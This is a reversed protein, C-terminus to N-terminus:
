AGKKEAALEKRKIMHEIKLIDHDNELLEYYYKLNRLRDMPLKDLVLEKAGGFEEEMKTMIHRELHANLMKVYYSEVHRVMQKVESGKEAGGELMADLLHEVAETKGLKALAVAATTRIDTHASKLYHLLRPIEQISRTEGLVFIGALLQERDEEDDLLATLHIMLRLRYKKFQWLAIITQARIMANPHDLYKEIYFGANIDHFMGIISIIDAKIQDDGDELRSLLFPVVDDHHINAFVQVIESRLLKSDTHVFVETLASVVRYKAFTQSFFHRGLKKYAALTRCAQQQVGEDPDKLAGLIEPLATTDRLLALSKLIKIKTRPSENKYILNKTLIESADQHGQQSLIEIALHKEPHDGILDLNKKALLTYKGQMWSLLLLMLVLILGMLVSLSINALSDPVLWQVMLLVGTGFFIGLPRMVGELFERIQERIRESIAYYSNHYANTHVVLFMEYLGKAAVITFFQFNFIMTLVSALSVGPLVRMAGVIGLRSVLRSSLFIQMLLMMSSFLIHLTGLGHTLMDEHSHGSDHPEKTEHHEEAHDTSIAKSEEKSIDKHVPETHSTVEASHALNEDVAKTYQYNLINVFMWQCFIVIALFRVFPIARLHKIGHAIRNGGGVHGRDEESHILTMFRHRKRYFFLLIPIIILMFFAWFYTFDTIHIHGALLALITGGIIGGLPESTEIIPNARENENPTFLEEIFALLMIHLQSVFVSLVLLTVGIFVPMHASFVTADLLLLSLATVVSVIILKRNEFAYIIQSYIFSGAVILLANVMYMWPLMTIGYEKVILATLMTWGIVFGTQFSLRISWAELIRGVEHPAINMIKCVLTRLNERPHVTHPYPTM